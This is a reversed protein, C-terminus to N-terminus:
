TAGPEKAPTSSSESHPMAPRDKCSRMESCGSAKLFLRATEIADKAVGQGSAVTLVLKSGMRNNADM